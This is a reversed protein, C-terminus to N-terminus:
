KGTADKGGIVYQFAKRILADPIDSHIECSGIDRPLIIRLKNDQRKKDKYVNLMCEEILTRRDFNMKEADLHVPLGYQRLINEHDNLLKDDSGFYNEAIYAAGAMGLSVGEGHRYVEELVSTSVEIAHGLTHGYNLKLRKNEERVDGNVYGLKIEIARSMIHMLAEEDQAFIDEKHTKLYAFLDRDAVIACKIIEALGAKFDRLSLTKIFDLDVVNLIPHYYNGIANITKRFNIAVKGGISSDIMATLTTPIHILNIGRFYTSAVFGALDGVVGGGVAIMTSDRSLINSELLEYIKIAESITKNLKGGELPYLYVAYGEQVLETKLISNIKGAFVADFVVVVDKNNTKKRLTELVPSPLIGKGMCLNYPRGNLDITYKKYGAAIRM